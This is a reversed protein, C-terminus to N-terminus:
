SGTGRAHSRLFSAFKEKNWESTTLRIMAEYLDDQSVVIEVDNVALFGLAAQLATRKNGDNFAHNKALHVAYAAAIDLLDAQSTYLYINQPQVLASALLGEDGVGAAGGFLALQQSHYALVEEKSLFLPENV